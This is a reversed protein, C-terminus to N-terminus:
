LVRKLTGSSNKGLLNINCLELILCQFARVAEPHSVAFDIAFAAGLSPGVLIM